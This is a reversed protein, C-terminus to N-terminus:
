NLMKYNPYLPVFQYSTHIDNVYNMYWRYIDIISIQEPNHQNIYLKHLKGITFFQMPYIPLHNVLLISQTQVM